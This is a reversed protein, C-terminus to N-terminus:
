YDVITLYNGATEAVLLLSVPPTSDVQSNNYAGRNQNKPYVSNSLSRVPIKKQKIIVRQNSTNLDIRLLRNTFSHLITTIYTIIYAVSTHHLLINQNM